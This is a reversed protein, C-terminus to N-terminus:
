VWQLALGELWRREEVSLEVMKSSSLSTRCNHAAEDRVGVKENDSTAGDAMDGEGAHDRMGVKGGEGTEVNAVPGEGYAGTVNYHTGGNNGGMVEVHAPEGPGGDGGVDGHGEGAADGDVGHQPTRSLMLERLQRELKAVAVVQSENRDVLRHMRAAMETRWERDEVEDGIVEAKPPKTIENGRPIEHGATTLEGILQGEALASVDERLGRRYALQSMSFRVENEAAEFCAEVHAHIYQCVFNGCDFDSTQLPM